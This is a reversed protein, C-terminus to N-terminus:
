SAQDKLAQNPLLAMILQLAAAFMYLWLGFHRNPCDGAHCTSVMIFNRFAWAMNFGCFFLNSRKAWIRPILFLFFAITSMIVNMLGPKGYRTGETAFGSISISTDPITVWTIFCAVIVLVAAIAGIQNSYKM